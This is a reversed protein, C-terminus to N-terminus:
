HLLNSLDQGSKLLPVRLSCPLQQRQNVIFQPLQRRVLEGLFFGPLRKLGRRQHVFGIQAQHVPVLSTLPVAAGM